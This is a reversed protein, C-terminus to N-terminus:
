HAGGANGADTGTPPQSVSQAAARNQLEARSQAYLADFNIPQLLLEPFGGRSVIGSIAERAYPFL